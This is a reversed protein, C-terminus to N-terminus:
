KKGKKASSKKDKEKENEKKEVPKSSLGVTIHSNRKLIPNYRGKAGARWWKFMRAGDAKVEHLYLTDSDLNLNNNANSEASKVVKLLLKAAKTPDFALITKVENLPKGRVLDMVIRLKKPGIRAMNHKAYVQAKQM